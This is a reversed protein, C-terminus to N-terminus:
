AHDDINCFFVKPGEIKWTILIVVEPKFLNTIILLQSVLDACKLVAPIHFSETGSIYKIKSFPRDHRGHNLPTWQIHHVVYTIIHFIRLNSYLERIFVM